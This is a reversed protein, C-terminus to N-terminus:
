KVETKSDLELGEWYAMDDSDYPDESIGAAQLYEDFSTTSSSYVKSTVKLVPRPLMALQEEANSGFIAQRVLTEKEVTGCKAVRNVYYRDSGKGAEWRQCDGLSKAEKLSPPEKAVSSIPWDEIGLPHVEFYARGRAGCPLKIRAVAEYAFGLLVAELKTDKSANTQVKTSIVISMPYNSCFGDYALDQSSFTATMSNHSHVVGVLNERVDDPFPYKETDIECHDMRRSQQPPVYLGTVTVELNDESATGMLIAVWENPDRVLGALIGIVTPAIYIKGVTRDVIPCNHVTEISSTFM